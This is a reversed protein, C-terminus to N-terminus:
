VPLNARSRRPPRSGCITSADPAAAATGSSAPRRWTPRSGAAPESAPSARHAVAAPRAPERAPAVLIWAAGHDVFFKVNALHQRLNKGTFMIQLTEPTTILVDPAYKSQHTRESQTTDGHRVAVRLDLADGFEELRRLMDRNLARLPTVYICRIGKGETSFLKNFIPLMAAETKGIGTPAVLLINRGALIHPIAETQPGTPMSINKDSLVKRIRDDLLEFVM